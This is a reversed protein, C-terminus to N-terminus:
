LDDVKLILTGASCCRISVVVMSQLIERKWDVGNYTDTAGNGRERQHALHKADVMRLSAHRVFAVLPADVCDVGPFRLVGAVLSLLFTSCHLLEARTPPLTKMVVRKRSGRRALVGNGSLGGSSGSGSRRGERADPHLAGADVFPALVRCSAGLWRM